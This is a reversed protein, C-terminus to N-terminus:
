FGVALAHVAPISRVPMPWSHAVQGCIRLGVAVLDVVYGVPWPLSEVVTPNAQFSYRPVHEVAMAQFMAQPSLNRFSM